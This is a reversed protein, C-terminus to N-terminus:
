GRIEPDIFPGELVQLVAGLSISEPPHALLYGGGPGRHSRVLDARKLLVMIHGLFEEPIKQRQAIEKVQIPRGANRTRVLETMALVGYFGKSGIKM